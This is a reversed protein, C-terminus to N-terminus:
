SKKFTIVILNFIMVTGVMIISEKFFDIFYGRPLFIFMSFTSLFTAKSILSQSSFSQTFAENYKMALYAVIPMLLPGFWGFNYYMEGLVNGGISSAMSKSFLLTYLWSESLHSFRTIYPIPSLLGTLYTLGNGFEVKEPFTYMAYVLSRFSGGFEGVLDFIFDFNFNESFLIFFNALSANPIQRYTRMINMVLLSLIGMVLINRSFVRTKNNNKVQFYYYVLSINVINLAAESRTGQFMSLIYIIFIAYFIITAKKYNKAGIIMFVSAANFVRSMVVLESSITNIYLDTYTGTSLTAIRLWAVYAYIPFFIIALLVGIKFVTRKQEEFQKTEVEINVTTIRKDSFSNCFLISVTYVIICILYFVLAKQFNEQGASYVWSKIYQSGDYGLKATLITGLNFVSLLIFFVLPPAFLNKYVSFILGGCLITMVFIYPYLSIEYSNENSIFLLFLLVGFILGCSIILYILSKKRYNKIM